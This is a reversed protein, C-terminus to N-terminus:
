HTSAATMASNDTTATELQYDEDSEVYDIPFRYNKVWQAPLHSRSVEHSHGQNGGLTAILLAQGPQSARGAVFTVHFGGTPFHVVAVAGYAPKNGRTARGWASLSNAGASNNGPFGARALCWNVFAACYADRHVNANKYSTEDFYAKIHADSVVGGNRKIHAQFEQEAIAMWPARRPNLVETQPNGTTNTSQVTHVDNGPQSIAPHPNVASSTAPSASSAEQSPTPSSQDGQAATATPAAPLSTSSSGAAQKARPVKLAQGPRIVYPSSIHNLQALTVYSTSHSKAINGLTDGKKIIYREFDDQHLNASTAPKPATSAGSKSSPESPPPQHLSTSTPVVM